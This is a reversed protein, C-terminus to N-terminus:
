RQSAKRGRLGATHDIINERHWWWWFEHQNQLNEKVFNEPIFSTRSHPQLTTNLNSFLNFSRMLQGEILWDIMQKCQCQILWSSKNHVTTCRLNDRNPWTQRRSVNGFIMSQSVTSSLRRLHLSRLDHFSFVIPLGTSTTMATCRLRYPRHAAMVTSTDTPTEVLSAPILWSHVFKTLHTCHM